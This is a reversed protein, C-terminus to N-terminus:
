NLNVLLNLGVSLPEKLFVCQRPFQRNNGQEWYQIVYRIHNVSLLNMAYLQLTSDFRRAPIKWAISANMAFSPKTYGNDKLASEIANMEGIYDANGYENQANVFSNLMAKQQYDWYFRGNLHVKFKKLNHNYFLKIMHKPVNNIRNEGFNRLAITEGNQGTIWADFNEVPDWDLQHVFSYSMGSYRDQDKYSLQAEVGIKSFTGLLTNRNVDNKQFWAIQDIKDYFGSFVINTKSNQIRNYIIEVGSLKEPAASENMYRYETYLETFNALRVSRQGVLKIINRKNLDYILALRPSYAWKAYEHKDARSSFLLQTNNFIKYNLEGFFSLQHGDIRSDIVTTIGRPGYTQNFISTSDLVAFNIPAPFSLIFSKDDMGWEPGMYQYKFASGLAMRVKDDPQYNLRIDMNAENESYSYHRQTIYDAIQAAGQYFQVHRQSASHFGASSTLSLNGTFNRENELEVMFMKGYNGPFHPGDATVTEQQLSTYNFTTLRSWLRWDNLFHVDLNLKVEPKNWFDEYLHTVPTGLGKNGWDPGMFGYGYGYARDVYFYQTDKEGKSRSISGYLFAKFKDRSFGYNVSAIGYRYHENGSLRVQLGDSSKTIINIIGGIAGPGYTVTGPGSIVDIREIDNLDKNQIEYMPGNFCKLNVNKGNVLLLYSNNQDGLVGRIGIRPGLWHDVFTAGPVYVEILDLLDRAPTMEIEESEISYLTIPLKTREVGTLNGTKIEVNLLDEFSMEFLDQFTDKEGAISQTYSFTCFVLLSVRIVYKLKKM